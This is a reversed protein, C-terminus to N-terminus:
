DTHEADIAAEKRIKEIVKEPKDIPLARFQQHADNVDFQCVSKYSCYECATKQKMRYPSISTDGKLIGQGAEKHKHRVFKQLDAMDKENIVSSWSASTSGDKKLYAPVIHSRGGAEALTEDMEVIVDRNDLLLGKMKFDKLVEEEYADPTMLTDAKLMPNHVHIYLVGGAEAHLPLWESSNTMAVDLYTLMQLSLGHYVDNLDLKQSSSKYDIVRIYPKDNIETADIRDIRGRMKLQHEDDLQIVLPPLMDAQGPGFAAEIAIPKFGTVRAHSTLSLMTREVIQTLKRMIYRYRATSLLIKHYLMPVIVEVAEKSLAHCQEPSLQAWTLQQEATKESIYKLAAHFLDGITPTELRYEKREELHLGYTTFHSFPCSYYKEIRSVSSIIDKGYLQQTYQPLLDEAKNHTILPKMLRALVDAWYPDNEYYAKLAAWSAPLPEADYYQKRLQVMLYALATRPHAIYHWDDETDLSQEPSMYVYREEMQPVIDRIKKVYTSPLLAKGESDSMAYSIFLEDSAVTLASYVILNEELLRERSTPAIENGTKEFWEREADALLGESDLRQPYVGENMGIVFVAKMHTLRALDATVVTVEDIAPPIRSFELTDLGEDLIHIFEELSLEQDGFMEVFQDLVNVWENWAQEHETADLLKGKDHEYDKLEVLKAYINLEDIFTYLATAYDIGTEARELADALQKLPERVLARVAEIEAQFAREEDTQKTTFFELGKYKKYLWRTEDFWRDGYIGQAMVFNELRDARERWIKRDANVPFFLDTKIARFIPEYKWDTQISELISRSFEILPHHLMPKKQSLFFPIDYQPFITSLLPDYQASQRYILAMENYAIGQKSLKRIHRAVEHIEAHPNVAAVVQVHDAQTAQVPHFQDFQSEILQLTADNFRQMETLHVDPKVEIGNAFAADKLRRATSATEYFLAQEDDADFENEYTLAITVDKATALLEQVLEFEQTTFSNFGDIYISAERIMESEVLKQQLLPLYGESDVYTTGLRQEVAAQILQIDHVKDRLTRPADLQDFEAQIGAMKEGNVNYRSLERLLQEMEETFGRKDAAKTFLKLEDKHEDLVRKLLMRYGFGNLEQRSIGGAEQLIRWALRKFSTVQVRIMGRADGALKTLDRESSFSMQDPVVMFIPAGLPAEEVAKMVECEMFHTKGVGTRGSIVRLAM